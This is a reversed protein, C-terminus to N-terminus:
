AIRDFAQTNDVDMSSGSNKSASRPASGDDSARGTTRADTSRYTVFRSATENFIAAHYDRATADVADLRRAM